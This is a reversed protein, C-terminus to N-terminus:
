TCTRPFEMWDRKSSYGQGGSRHMVSFTVENEAVLTVEGLYDDESYKDTYHMFAYTVWDGM